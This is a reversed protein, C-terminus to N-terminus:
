CKKIFIIVVNQIKLYFHYIKLTLCHLLVFIMVVNVLCIGICLNLQFIKTNFDTTGYSRNLAVSRRFWLNCLM